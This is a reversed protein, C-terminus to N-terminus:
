GQPPLYAGRNERMDKQLAAKAAKAKAEDRSKKMESLSNGLNVGAGVVDGFTKGFESANSARGTKQYQGLDWATLAARADSARANALNNAQVTKQTKMLEGNLLEQSRGTAAQQNLMDKQAETASIDAKQKKLGYMQAIRQSIDPLQSMQPTTTAVVGGSGAASGAALVKSMGASELDAVRRQVANDEREFIRNQLDKQYKFMKKQLKYNAVGIGINAIDTLGGTIGSFSEAFSM